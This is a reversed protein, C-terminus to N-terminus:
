RLGERNFASSAYECQARVDRYCQNRCNKNPYDYADGYSTTRETGYLNECEVKGIMECDKMKLQIPAEIYKCGEIALFRERSLQPEGLAQGTFTTSEFALIISALALFAFISLSISLTQNNM